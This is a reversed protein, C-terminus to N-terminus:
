PLGDPSRRRASRSRPSRRTRRPRARQPRPPARSCAPSRGPAGASCRPRGRRVRRFPTEIVSASAVGPAAVGATGGLCNRPAAAAPRPRRGPPRAPRTTSGGAPASSAAIPRRRGARVGDAVVVPRRQPPVERDQANAPRTTANAITRSGPRPPWMGAVPQIGARGLRDVQRPDHQRGDGREAEAEHEAGLRRQQGQAAPEAIRAIRSTRLSAGSSTAPSIAAHPRRRRAHREDELRGQDRRHDQDLRGPDAPGPQRDHQDRPQQGRPDPREDREPHPREGSEVRAVVREARQGSGSSRGGPSQRSRKSSGTRRRRRADAHEHDKPDGALQVAEDLRALEHQQREGAQGDRSQRNRELRHGVVGDVVHEERPLCRERPQDRAGPRPRDRRESSTIAKLPSAQVM